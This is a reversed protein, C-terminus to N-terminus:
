VCHVVFTIEGKGEGLLMENKEASNDYSPLQTHLLELVLYKSTTTQWYVGRYKMHLASKSQCVGYVKIGNRDLKDPMYIKFILLLGKWATM